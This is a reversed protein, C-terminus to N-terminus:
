TSLGTTTNWRSRDLFQFPPRVQDVLQAIGLYISIVVFLAICIVAGFSTYKLNDLSRISLLPVSLFLTVLYM